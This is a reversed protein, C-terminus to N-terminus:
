RCALSSRPTVDSHTGTPVQVTPAPPPRGVAVLELTLALGVVTGASPEEAEVIVTVSLSAFLLGTLPLITEISPAPWGSTVTTSPTELALPWAVNVAVFLVASLTVKRAVSTVSATGTICVAITVNVPFVTLALTELTVALGTETGASPELTDVIVTVSFSALPFGTLPFVTENAAPLPLEVIVVTAPVVPAFPWALKVTLSATLSDTVKVALSVVSETVTVWVAATVKTDFVTLALWDVTAALGLETGASPELVEEIVTVRFSALPFGTLPFATENVAPLPLEVIVVTAPVVPAFPCALNATFSETASDTVKVALSVVSETVTIWVAVTLKTAVATLALRDVTAALGLETGASPELVEVIVTVSFSALPFGTLPFATENVAPLPLEVIVVTAPVVPTFPWALKV